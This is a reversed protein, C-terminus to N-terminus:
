IGEDGFFYARLGGGLAEVAEREPRPRVFEENDAERILNLWYDVPYCARQIREGATVEENRRRGL